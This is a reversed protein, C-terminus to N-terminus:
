HRVWSLSSGEALILPRHLCQVEEKILLVVRLNLSCLLQSPFLICYNANSSHTGDVTIPVTGPGMYYYGRM